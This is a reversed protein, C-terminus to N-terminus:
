TLVRLANENKEIINPPLDSGCHKCKIAEFKVDEACFPCQKIPPLSLIKEDGPEDVEKKEDPKSDGKIKVETWGARLLSEIKLDSVMWTFTITLFIWTLVAVGPHIFLAVTMILVYTFFPVWLGYIMLALPGFFFTSITIEVGVEEAFTGQPNVFKRAM